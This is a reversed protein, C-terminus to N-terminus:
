RPSQPFGDYMEDREYINGSPWDIIAVEWFDFAEALERDEFSRALEGRVYIRVTVYSPGYDNPAYYHAGITYGSGNLGPNLNNHTVAEPGPARSADSSLEPDDSPDGQAGWDATKNRWYIDWPSENWSSAKPNLYHLDVDAGRNDDPNNDGPTRWSMEVYIDDDPVVRIEVTAPDCSAWPEPGELTLEFTWVGAFDLDIEPASGNDDPRLAARTAEPRSLISWRYGDIAGAPESGSADLIVNTGPSVEGDELPEDTGAVLPEIDPEPCDAGVAGVVDVTIRERDPLNTEIVIEAEYTEGIADPEFTVPLALQEDPQLVAEDGPPQFGFVGDDDTLRMTFTIPGRDGCNSLELQRTIPRDLSPVALAIEDDPELDLCGEHHGVLEVTKPSDAADSTFTLSGRDTGLETSNYEVHVFLIEGPQLERPLEINRGAGNQELRAVSFPEGGVNSSELTLAADGTNTLEFTRRTGPNDFSLRDPARLRGEDASSTDPTSADSTADPSGGPSEDTWDTQLCQNYRCIQDDPCDRNTECPQENGACGAVVLMVLSAFGLQTRYM